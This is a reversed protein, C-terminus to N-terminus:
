GLDISKCTLTWSIGLTDITLLEDIWAFTIRTQIM